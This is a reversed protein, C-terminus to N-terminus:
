RSWRKSPNTDPVTDPELSPVRPTDPIKDVWTESNRSTPVHYYGADEAAVLAEGFGRARAVRYVNLLDRQHKRRMILYTALASGAGVALLALANTLPTSEPMSVEAGTHTAVPAADAGVSAGAHAPASLGGGTHVGGTRPLSAGFVGLQAGPASSASVRKVMIRVEGQPPVVPMKDDFRMRADGETSSRITRGNVEVSVILAGEGQAYQIMADTPGRNIWHLLTLAGHTELPSADVRTFVCASMPTPARMVAPSSAPAPVRAPAHTRAFGPSLFPPM